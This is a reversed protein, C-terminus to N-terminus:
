VVGRQDAGSDAERVEKERESAADVVDREEHSTDPEGSDEITQEAATGDDGHGIHGTDNSDDDNSSDGNRDSSDISTSDDSYSESRDESGHDSGGSSSEPTPKRAEQYKLADTVAKVEDDDLSGTVNVKLEPNRRLRRLSRAVVDVLRCCGEPCFAQEVNVTLNQLGHMMCLLEGAVGWVAESATRDLDHLHKAKRQRTEGRFDTSQWLEKMREEHFDIPIYDAVFRIELSRIAARSPFTETVATYFCFDDTMSMFCALERGTSIVFTSTSYLLASAEKNIQRNVRLIALDPISEHPDCATCCAACNFVSVHGFHLLHDYIRNRIEGPVTLLSPPPRVKMQNKPLAALLPQRIHM